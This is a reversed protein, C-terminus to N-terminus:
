KLFKRMHSIHLDAYQKLSRSLQCILNVHLSDLAIETEGHIKWTTHGVRSKRLDQHGYLCWIRHNSFQRGPWKNVQPRTPGEWIGIRETDGTKQKYSVPEMWGESRGQTGCPLNLWNSILSLFFYLFFLLLLSSVVPCSHPLTRIGGWPIYMVIDQTGVWTSSPLKLSLGLNKSFVRTGWQWGIPLFDACLPLNQLSQGGGRVLGELINWSWATDKPNTIQACTWSREPNGAEQIFFFAFERSRGASTESTNTRTCCAALGPSLLLDLIRNNFYKSIM